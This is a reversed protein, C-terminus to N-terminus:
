YGTSVKGKDKNKKIEDLVIALYQKMDDEAVSSQVGTQDALSDQNDKAIRLVVKEIEQGMQATGISDLLKSQEIASKRISQRLKADHSISIASTYLGVFILYSALGIFSVAALGFPPYSAAIVSAQDATFLLVFGYASITLYEKVTAVRSSNSAGDNQHLNRAATWYVVAFLFGGATSNLTTLVILTFDDFKELGPILDYFQSLFYVLPLVIIIWYKISGFKQTYHHLVLATGGWLLVFSAIGPIVYIDSLMKEISGQMYSPYEVPSQPSIESSKDAVLIYCMLLIAAVATVALIASSIGYLLVVHNRNSKYWSFLLFALLAMITGALIYSIATVAALLFTYYHSTLVMQFIVFLIIATLSYQVITVINHMVKLHSTHLRIGRSKQKVFELIFYQGFGYICLIIIFLTIGSSSVLFEDIFDAINSVMADVVLAVAVLTVTILIKYKNSVSLPLRFASVL